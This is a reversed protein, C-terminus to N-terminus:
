TACPPGSHSACIYGGSSAKRTVGCPSYRFAIQPRIPRFFRLSGTGGFDSLWGSAHTSKSNNKDPSVATM